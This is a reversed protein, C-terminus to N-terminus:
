AGYYHQEKIREWVVNPLFPQANGGSHMVQRVLSASIHGVMHSTPLLITEVGDGQVRNMNAMNHEYGLDSSSRVGRIIIDAGLDKVVHVLLGTHAVVEVYELGECAAIVLALREEVALEARTGSVVVYLQDCLRRARQIIDVHGLTIPNFSGPFVARM